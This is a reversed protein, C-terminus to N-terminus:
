PYPFYLSFDNYKERIESLWKAQDEVRLKMNFLEKSVYIKKTKDGVRMVIPDKNFGLERFIHNLRKASPLRFGRAKLEKSVIDVTAVSIENGFEFLINDVNSADDSISESIMAEKAITSIPALMPNFDKLDISMLWARVQDQKSDIVDYIPKWYDEGRESLLHERDRFKTAFVGWRRDGHDLVLADYHNTFAMYNQCNLIDVGDDGKRVVSITQNTIFPKLKNMVEHRNHGNIRIEEIVGVCAGTAWASFKSFAEDLSVNKVNRQGMAASMIRALTTKGDGQVGLVILAWLIKEGPKQVNHAMWKIVTNADDDNDFMSRVHAELIVCDAYHQAAVPHSSKRYSNVFSVGDHEFYPYDASEAQKPWYMDSFVTKGGYEAFMKSPLKRNGNMDYPMDKQFKIDLSKVGIRNGIAPEFFECSQELFVWKTALESKNFSIQSNVKAAFEMENTKILPAIENIPLNSGLDKAKLKIRHAISKCTAATLGKMLRIKNPIVKLLDTVTQAKDVMDYAKTLAEESQEIVIAETPAAPIKPAQIIEGTDNDIVSFEDMIAQEREAEQLAIENVLEAEAPSLDGDHDLMVHATWADFTGNLADSGHDSQWLGDTGKIRRVGPSGTAGPPSWRNHSHQEYGNRELISEVTNLANYHGRYVSPFALKKGHGISKKPLCGLAAFFKLEQDWRFVSDNSCRTWWAMFDQPLDPADDFLHATFPDYDQECPNGQKDEYRVGPCCDQLNDSQARLELAIGHEHSKFQIWILDPHSKFASRGGSGPRTSSTRVGAAMLDELEFGLSKLGIRSAELDDPDISCLNNAPLSIGYGTAKPDIRKVFNETKNWANGEPSKLNPELKCLKFGKALLRQAEHLHEPLEKISPM